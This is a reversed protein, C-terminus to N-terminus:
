AARGDTATRSADDSLRREIEAEAALWDDEPCGALFGRKQAIFYAAVSVMETRLERTVATRRDSSAEQGATPELNKGDRGKSGIRTQQM